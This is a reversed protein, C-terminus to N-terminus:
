RGSSGLCRSGRDTKVLENVEIPNLKIIKQILIQAIKDGQKIHYANEELVREFIDIRNNEFFADDTNSFHLSKVFSEAAARILPLVNLNTLCIFLNSNYGFDSVGATRHIGAAGVSGRDWVLISITEFSSHLIQPLQLCINTNIKKTEGPYITVDEDSYVDWGADSSYAKTPIRATPTLRKVSLQYTSNVVIEEVDELKM